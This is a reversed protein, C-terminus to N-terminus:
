IQHHGQGDTPQLCPRLGSIFGTTNMELVKGGSKGNERSCRRWSFNNMARSASVSLKEITSNAYGKCKGVLFKFNVHINLYDSIM